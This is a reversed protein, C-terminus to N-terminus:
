YWCSSISVKTGVLFVPNKGVLDRMRSLFSGSADLLDVLLVAVARQERVQVNCLWPEACCACCYVTGHRTRLCQQVILNVSHSAHQM